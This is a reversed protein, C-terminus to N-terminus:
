HLDLLLELEAAHAPKRQRLDPLPCAAVARRQARPQLVSLACVPSRMVETSVSCSM